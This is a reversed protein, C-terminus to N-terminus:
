HLLTDFIPSPRAEASAGHLRPLSHPHLITISISDIHTLVFSGHITVSISHLRLHEIRYGHLHPQRVHLLVAENVHDCMVM